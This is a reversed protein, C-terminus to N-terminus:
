YKIIREKLIEGDKMLVYVTMIETDGLFSSFYLKACPDTGKLFQDWDAEEKALSAYLEDSIAKLEKTLAEEGMNPNEHRFKLSLGSRTWNMYATEVRMEAEKSTLHFTKVYDAEYKFHQLFKKFDRSKSECASVEAALM